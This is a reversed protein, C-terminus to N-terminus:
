SFLTFLFSLSLLRWPSMYADCVTIVPMMAIWGYWRLDAVLDRAVTGANRYLTGLFLISSAALEGTWITQNYRKKKQIEEEEGERKMERSARGTSDYM